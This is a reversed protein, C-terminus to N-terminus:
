RNSLEPQILKNGMTLNKIYKNHYQSILPNIKQRICDKIGKM